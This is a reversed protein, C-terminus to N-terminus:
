RTWLTRRRKANFLLFNYHKRKLTTQEPESPQEPTPTEGSLVTYWSEALSARYNQVSESQDKPREYNLLFAKALSAVSDTSKTFEAFSFNYTEKAIWQKNNAVEYLIRALNNDMESYDSLGQETCWDIYNTAPTWQVLGYGMSMNNVDESQWRGPNITSEAQMNGLMASIAQITWGSQTLYSYVYGANTTMESQTLPSSENLGSGYYSGFKGSRLTAM